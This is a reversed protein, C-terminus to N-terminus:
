SLVEVVCPEEDEDVDEGETIMKIKKNKKHCTNEKPNREFDM